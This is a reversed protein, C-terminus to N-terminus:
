GGQREMRRISILVLLATVSLYVLTLLVWPSLVPISAGNSALTVRMTVLQQHDILMQQSRLTAMIPNLGTAIMDLYITTAEVVPDDTFRYTFSNVVNGYANQFLILALLPLGVTIAIAVTYSRITAALTRETISSFFMGFAGLAIASVLLVVLALILEAESVGGFLFAISQMPIASLLLLVIYGLASQMKGVVFTAKTILTTQLLDYTKRERETTIAGATLAPVIFIILMLEIFLVGIFLERGLDGTVVVGGAPVRLLYLLITFFSMLTLFITIIAFGRVGRMRGRLEKVMVPNLRFARLDGITLLGVTLLPVIALLGATFGFLALAALNVATLLWATFVTWLEQALIVAALVLLVASNALIGAIILLAASDADIAFRSLAAEQLAAFLANDRNAAHVAVVIAVIAAALNVLAGWLMIQSSRRILRERPTMLEPPVRDWAPGQPVNEGFLSGILRYLKKLTELM